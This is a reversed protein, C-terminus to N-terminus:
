FVADAITKNVTSGYSNGQDSIIHGVNLRCEHCAIKDKLLDIIEATQASLLFAADM